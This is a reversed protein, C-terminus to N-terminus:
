DSFSPQPIPLNMEQYKQSTVSTPVSVRSMWLHWLFVWWVCYIGSEVRQTLCLGPPLPDPRAWM